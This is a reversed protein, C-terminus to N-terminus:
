EQDALIQERADEHNALSAEANKGNVAVDRLYQSVLGIADLQKLCDEKIDPHVTDDGRLHVLQVAKDKLYDEEILAQFDPNKQLATLHKGLKIFKKLTEMTVEITQIDIEQESM